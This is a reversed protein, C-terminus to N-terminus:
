VPETVAPTIFQQWGDFLPMVQQTDPIRHAYAIEQWASTTAVLWGLRSSSLHHHALHLIDGETHSAQVALQDHRTLRMLAGRYLLSLAERPKGREWLHRSASAIDVPLSEPRIDMGFLIDPPPPKGKRRKVPKLLALLQRHYVLLLILGLALAIWLLTKLIGAFLVQLAESLQLPEDQEAKDEKARWRKVTRMRSFEERAMVNAMQEQSAEPPLRERTLYEPDAPPPAAQIPAAPLLLLCTLLAVLLTAPTHRALRYLRSGLNRFALEIDWAELQTRRNLYLSFSAAMYFPEMFWVSVGYLVFYIVNGWYQVDTDFNELFASRLYDWSGLNPDFLLIIAYLSLLIVMEMNSCAVTLWVAHSHAQVHLLEQRQKQDRGRLHELQWVPLNFGRSLSFRRWTLAGLLGTHTVLRPLTSAVDALSLHQNFLLHSNLHLLVRDYLPKLWWLLLPAAAEYGTPMMLWVLLATSALLLSWAPLLYPWQQRNMAFGLDAAEWASRLRIHTTIQDLKM